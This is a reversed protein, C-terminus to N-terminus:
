FKLNVGVMYTRPSPYFGLDIGSSWSSDDQGTGGNYGYGVEPDMGSYNTFTYLNQATFYLRAQGLPMNRFLKKFDYGVTVNQIKVYDGDEIYIDSINQWNTHSGSTLRPLKNSTGEGTWRGFIETTYNQLPSDAFSRYSKAIQQGFAGTGSINLDFGKYAFNLNMGLTFDPNPNGIMTRDDETITGSNDTDVFILDGPQTGAYKATTNNVQDWNQFVGATKYGYFYGIPFGEQARYMETTGQSLVNGRGHIIGEANAIRTVKNVNHALNVSAGYQFEGAKDNWNLSIEFGKNEIDGGNVSPANLGWVAPIPATVLWNKTTKTYWDFTLGLRANLFRADFGLDLQESTEWKVDPNALIDAYGGVTQTLKDAAFYYGNSTDFAITSLYQFNDITANGNQGWSARLKMFDMWNSTSEMFSENTMVWGASMSPFYGWRNGPAFNSSGDARMTFSAMYTEKYNYNTRGFFSALAGSGWPSGGAERQSLVTPKTNDVWANDFLGAFISNNGSANVNSGMGWKEVSQGILVDFQHKDAIMFKYALTNDLTTNHGSSANQVVNDLTVNTNNSLHRIGDYSRYASATMKYGFQSRFVLNKIPQIEMYASTQLAYNKSLNLGWSSLATAALPNGTNGDFNWGNAVKDDYDYFNGDTDYAPLLPNGILLNHISNGYINGIAIGSKANYNYNLTQGIKIVDFDKVKLLVHDSNIRATYRDYQSQVPKGLIGEQSTYSFGLSFKSQETGGALNIAHNQTPAAENYAEKMWNTGQWSGDMVSNYLDSPLLNAWDFTPNAENFRTEDMMSMYEKGNLLAPMKASFQVGYYGDYTLQLKGAKGKKTTVLVVGNAARSGYIAASAADKLVDISEIDSTNLSNIDGGAVGDIVYLPSSSGTTGLGRITVKFGEGPQGSSQTIQVGPSQSQLAGLVNVSSMKQLDEAGVQITAGTSLKKKQVGYGIAIVEDLGFAEDELVINLVSQGAVEVEATKLGVFSFVLKDTDSINDLNFNGDMDTVTGNSTGKIVVTAGPIPDGASGTVKGKITRPQQLESKSAAESLAIQRDDIKYTIGAGQFLKNLVDTVLEDKAKISVVRDVDVFKGNYMFFFETQEEINQLVTRITTNSLNLSLRTNQTYTSGAFVQSTWLLCIVISLKM